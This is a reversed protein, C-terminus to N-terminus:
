KLLASMLGDLYTGNHHAITGGLDGSVISQSYLNPHSSAQRQILACGSRQSRGWKDVLVREGM